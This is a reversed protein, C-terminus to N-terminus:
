VAAVDNVASLPVRLTILQTLLPELSPDAAVQEALQGFKILDDLEDTPFDGTCQPYELDQMAAMAWPGRVWESAVPFFEHPLGDLGRGDTARAELLERLGRCQGAGASMGQGYLPNFFCVSDGIPLLGEPFRDLRDYHRRIASPLRYTSPRSVPKATAACRSWEPSILTEGFDLMGQWDTPCPDGHRSGIGLLWRGGELKVAAGFRSGHPGEQSPIVFFVVGDFADWNEPEVIVSVYQVDCNIHSEPVEDYGITPLWRATRSNRGSADVVLDAGLQEGDALTVGRVAGEVMIPADAITEYRFKVNDLATVRARVRDELLPRTQVYMQDGDIPEPRHTFMSYSKGEKSYVYFERGATMPISGAEILDNDFGPFWETMADMGGPLLVHFHNGQPVGKRPEPGNPHDREVVVVERFYPAIAATAFLGGMGAGVVVARQGLVESM